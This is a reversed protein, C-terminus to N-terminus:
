SGLSTYGHYDHIAFGWFPGLNAAATALERNMIEEGEESFDVKDIGTANTEVGVM